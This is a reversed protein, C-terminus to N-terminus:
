MCRIICLMGYKCLLLGWYAEAETDDEEVISGYINSAKDFEGAVRM